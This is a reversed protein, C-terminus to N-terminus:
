EFVLKGSSESNNEGVIRYYYIGANLGNREIQGKGNSIASEFLLRGTIDYIYFKAEENNILEINVIEKSPIPYVKDARTESIVKKMGVVFFDQYVVKSVNIFNGGELETDITMVIASDANYTHHQKTWSSLEWLSDVLGYVIYDTENDQDDYNLKCAANMEPNNSMPYFIQFSDIQTKESFLGDWKNFRINNKTMVTKYGTSDDSWWDYFEETLIDDVNYMYRYRGGPKYLNSIKDYTLVLMQTILDGDYIYQISDIQALEFEGTFNNKQYSETKTILKKDNYFMRRYWSTDWTESASYWSLRYEKKLLGEDYTMSSFSYTYKGTVDFYNAHLISVTKGEENYQYRVTDPHFEWDSTEWDFYIATQHKYNNPSKGFFAQESFQEFFPNQAYLITNLQLLFIIICFRSIMVRYNTIGFSFSEVLEIKM